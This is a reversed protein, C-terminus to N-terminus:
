KRQDDVDRYTFHGQIRDAPYPKGDVEVYPYVFFNLPPGAQKPDLTLDRGASFTVRDETLHGFYYEKMAPNKSAESIDVPVWGGRQPKFKAWCHYGAIEGSGRRRPLPFGIEFKAPIGQSRALSIFLSHFDSCNGYGSECAWVSDGQGWGTGEKSYRMHGAVLDCLARSRELSDAPLNKGKLLTLPKGDTPVRANPRLFLSDDEATDKGGGKHPLTLTPPLGGVVERRTVRYTVALPITGQETARAQLYMMRNGYTADRGIQPKAPLRQAVIAVDQDKDSPPLPIWIRVPQRSSLGTVTAEYTFLFERSRPKATEVNPSPKPEDALIPLGTLLAFALTGLALKRFM